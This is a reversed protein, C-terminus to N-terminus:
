SNNKLKSLYKALVCSKREWKVEGIIENLSEYWNFLIVFSFNYWDSYEEENMEDQRFKIYLDLKLYKISLFYIHFVGFRIDDRIWSQLYLILIFM